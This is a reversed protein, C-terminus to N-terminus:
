WPFSAAELPFNLPHQVLCLLVGQLTSSAILLSKQYHNGQQGCLSRHLGGQSPASSFTQWFQLAALPFLDGRRVFSSSFLSAPPLHSLQSEAM